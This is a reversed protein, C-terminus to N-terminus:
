EHITTLLLFNNLSSSKSTSHCKFHRGTFMIFRFFLHPVSLSLSFFFFYTFSTVILDFQLVNSQPTNFVFFLLSYLSLLPCHGCRSNCRSHMLPEIFQSFQTHATSTFVEDLQKHHSCSSLISSSFCSHSLLGTM